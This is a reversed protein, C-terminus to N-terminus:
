LSFEPKIKQPNKRIGALKYADHLLADVPWSSTFLRIVVM